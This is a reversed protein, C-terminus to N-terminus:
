LSVLPQFVGEPVVIPGKREPPSQPCAAVAQLYELYATARWVFRRGFERERDVLVLDTGPIVVHRGSCIYRERLAREMAAIEPNFLTEPGM